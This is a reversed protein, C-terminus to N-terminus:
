DRPLSSGLPTLENPVGIQVRSRVPVGKHHRQLHGSLCFLLMLKM